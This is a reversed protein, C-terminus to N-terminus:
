PPMDFDSPSRTLGSSELFYSLGITIATAADGSVVRRVSLEVAFSTDIYGLGGSIAHSKLGDDYRYGARLPVHDGVLLEGGAMLRTKTKQYTTFDGVMDAELSFDQTGFAAGGGLSLPRLGTGPNTLNTGVLSLSLADAPKATIGADFSWTNIIADNQIGGSAYSQGFPGLGDQRLKLYKGTAGVFIRESLPYALGFRVDTIKRKLGDPDQQTYTGSLGGALRSTVSDVAAAGYSQRGAEPWIQAIASLHYVRSAAMNAPNTFLATVDPGLARTAGGLAASRGTELENYNYGVEPPLKSPDAHAARPAALTGASLLAAALSSRHRLSPLSRM